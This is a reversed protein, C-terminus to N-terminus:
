QGQQELVILIDKLIRQASVTLGLYSILYALLILGVPIFIPFISVDKTGISIGLLAVEFLTALIAFLILVVKVPRKLTVSISVSTSDIEEWITLKILPFFSNHYLAGVNKVELIIEKPNICRVSIDSYALFVKEIEKIINKSNKQININKHINPFLM